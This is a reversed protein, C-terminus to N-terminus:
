PGESKDEVTSMVLVAADMVAGFSNLWAENDHSSRFYVLVPYALHSELMAAPWGRWEDFTRTLQDKMGREAATELIHVGSPPAGAMADLTVVLEERRQFSQYLSFLLTIALAALIVGTASEAITALRAPAGEPFFDGYSLPVLTTASFYVSTGFSEPVPRMEDRVGDIIMGYALVLALGWAIFITLVAVPGYTALWRERRPISSMRNGVWRWMWYIGRVLYRVTALKNIAPRPLVVSQFIDYLVVLLIAVGGLLGGWHLMTSLLM